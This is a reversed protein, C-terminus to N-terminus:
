ICVFLLIAQSQVIIKIMPLKPDLFNVSLTTVKIEYILNKSQKLQKCNVLLFDYNSNM